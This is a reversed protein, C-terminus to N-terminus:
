YNYGHHLFFNYICFLLLTNHKRTWIWEGSYQIPYGGAADKFQYITNANHTSPSIRSFDFTKVGREKLWAFIQEMIFHTASYKMSEFSNAAFVDAAHSKHIYVIRACLIKGEHRVYYVRYGSQKILEAVKNVSLSFGLSKRAKLENFLGCIIAADETTPHELVEFTLRNATARKLNRKWDSDSNRDSQIDIFQTLPCIRNGLPRVFGACRLGIEREVEYIRACNYTIMNASSEEIISKFFKTIMRKTVNDKQVEGAIDIIRGIMKVEYIRGWCAQQPDELNDIFYIFQINPTRKFDNWAKTQEFPIYVGMKEVSTYFQEETIVM